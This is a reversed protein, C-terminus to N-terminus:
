FRYSLNMFCNIGQMYFYKNAFRRPYQFDSRGQEYGGIKVNTNNLVNAVSINLNIVNRNKLYFIKGLSLDLTLYDGLREQTTLHEYAEMASKDNPDISAYTSAVRRQPTAEIYTRGFGNLNAGLFWYNIFYRVGFTGAMQPMGGVYVNKMYVKEELNDIKGNESNIVGMPNNNYYNEGINGALDFSWNNDLKYTVGLEVGRNVRNVGSLLHNVFTRQTSHYYSTRHMQDYFNTQYVSVRGNLSRTSFVYSLDASLVKGSSMDNTSKDSVRPSIYAINALPAETGYSINGRLFHQGSIKYTLGAKVGFDLFSHVKGKGYSNDPYRGNKMRGYRSFSTYDVKFGYNIDLRPLTYKNQVWLGAKHINIDFNHGFIGDECVKRNPRLLDNQMKDKDGHFDQEAFKDYDLLYKAGLLDDLTKFQRSLSTRLEVGASLHNRDNIATNFTSNLTTEFMDSRREELVYLAEGNSQLANALYMRDWNIQTIDTDNARWLLERRGRLDPSTLYSPMERYYDPRPDPADYWNIATNGYRSYHTGIGTALSSKDSIKWVHSVILTPDFATVTKANRKKGNQYGWNPNYLNNNLLNNAEQYSSGQQGRVVPSGFTVFSLSHKGANWQKELSLAYALNRYFTGEIAGEHSYRGGVSATFAWGNDQLGTSYTVMSRLYYNRNTYSVTAKTGKTYRAARMNINEAGGISGFTFNAYDNYNVVDGNRTVDNLAGVSSYNFQQRLQDNFNVGNIYKREYTNDYGRVRFRSPSLQFAVKSLFVDNSFIVKSNIEQSQGEGDSDVANEDIIGLLDSNELGNSSKEVEIKGLNVVKEAFLSFTFVSNDIDVGSIVLTYDGSSLKDITFEGSMNTKVTRNLKIIAVSVGALPKKEKNDVVTGKVTYNKAGVDQQAFSTVSLLCALCLILFQGM